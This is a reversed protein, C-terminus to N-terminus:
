NSWKTIIKWIYTNLYWTKIVFRIWKINKNIYKIWWNLKIIIINLWNIIIWKITNEIEM